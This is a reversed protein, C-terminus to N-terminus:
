YLGRFRCITSASIHGKSLCPAIAQYELMLYAFRSDECFVCTVIYYIEVWYQFNRNTESSTHSAQM